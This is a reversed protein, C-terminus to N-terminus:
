PRGLRAVQEAFAATRPLTHELSWKSNTISTRSEQHQLTGDRAEEDDILECVPCASGILFVREGKRKCAIRRHALHRAAVVYQDLDQDWRGGLFHVDGEVYEYDQQQFASSLANSRGTCDVVLDVQLSAGGVDLELCGDGHTVSALKDPLCRIRSRTRSWTERPLDFPEEGQWFYEILGGSYCYRQKNAFYYDRVDAAPQGIWYVTEPGLTVNTLPSYERRPYTLPLLCEMACNATDGAGVVAVTTGSLRDLFQTDDHCTRIFEDGRMTRASARDQAFTDLRPDGMGNAIVVSTGRALSDGSSVRYGEACSEIARVDFDFVVDADAHLLMMTALEHLHKATPFTRAALEDFDSLQIFHGPVVNANLGVKSSTPSNLILSDGLRAFTSCVSESREVILVELAPRRRKVITLFTAAHIGAGVLVVDYRRHLDPKKGRLYRTAAAVYDRRRDREYVHDRVRAALSPGAPQGRAELHRAVREAARGVILGNADLLSPRGRAPAGSPALAEPRKLM